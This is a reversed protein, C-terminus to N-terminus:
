NSCSERLDIIELVEILKISFTDSKFLTHHHEDKKSPTHKIFGAGYKFKLRCYFLPKAAPSLSVTKRYHTIVEGESSEDVRSISVGRYNCIDDCKTYTNQKGEEKWSRFDNDAPDLTWVRRAFRDSVNEAVGDQAICNCENEIGEHLKEFTMAQTATKTTELPTESNGDPTTMM